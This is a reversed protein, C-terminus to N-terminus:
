KGFACAPFRCERCEECLGGHGLAVVDARDISEGAFIRPLLLDLTTVKSFLAGGPIGIVPVEGLYSLMFQSGPLVPVGYFVERAQSRRIGEPTADDADVSMGGTVMILEAGDGYYRKIEEAILGADDTVISQGLWVAGYYDMKERLVPGFGDRIAGSKVERGTIVAAARLPKYPKVWVLPGPACIEEAQALLAEEVALPVVRTGAVKQGKAVCRDNHLTSFVIKDLTNLRYLRPVDVKLWGDHAAKLNVRGMAVETPELGAGGAARALRLAADDEHVVGAEPEWIFVHERGISKLLAIDDAQIIHGRKFARYKKQGPVIRVIDHGLEQGVAQEVPIKKM